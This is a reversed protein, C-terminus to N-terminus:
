IREQNQRDLFSNTSEGIEKSMSAIKEEIEKLQEANAAVAAIAEEDGALYKRHLEIGEARKRDIYAKGITGAVVDQTFENIIESHKSLQALQYKDNSAQIGDQRDLEALQGTSVQKFEQVEEKRKKDLAKAYDALDSSLKRTSYNRRSYSSNSSSGTYTVM